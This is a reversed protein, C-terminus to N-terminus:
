NDQEKRKLYVEILFEDEVRSAGLVFVDSAFAM